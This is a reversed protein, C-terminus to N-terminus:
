EGCTSCDEQCKDCGGQEYALTDLVLCEIEIKANKPLAAVQVTSRAPYPENFYSAYVENMQTFEALDAMFVTTKVIHHAALDIEKLITLINEMVQKTQAKIDGDVLEGTYPDIGLQGSLYVFDGLKVGPSYPGIAPAIKTSKIAQLYM